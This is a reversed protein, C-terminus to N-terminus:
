QTPWLRQNSTLWQKKTPKKKKKRHLYSSLSGFFHEKKPFSYGFIWRPLIGLASNLADSRQGLHSVAVDDDDGDDNNVSLPRQLTWHCIPSTSATFVVQQLGVLNDFLDVLPSQRSKSPPSRRQRHWVPQLDSHKEFRSFNECMVVM